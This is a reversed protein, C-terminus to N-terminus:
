NNVHDHSRYSVGQHVSITNRQRCTNEMPRVLFCGQIHTILVQFDDIEGTTGRHPSNYHSLSKESKIFYPEVTDWDWGVRGAAAWANYEGPFSRTYLNANVKSSGGLLKGSMMNVAVGGPNCSLPAAMWKTIPATPSRYDMSIVPVRSAWTDVVCGREILLVSVDPDESLRSALVCGSTGGLVYTCSRLLM